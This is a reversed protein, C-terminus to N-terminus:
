RDCGVLEIADNWGQCSLIDRLGGVSAKVLNVDVVGDKEAEGDNVDDDCFADSALGDDRGGLM